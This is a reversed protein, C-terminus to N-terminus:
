HTINDAVEERRERRRRDRDRRLRRVLLSDAGLAEDSDILKHLQDHYEALTLGFREAVAQPKPQDELWWTREFELLDTELKSLPM